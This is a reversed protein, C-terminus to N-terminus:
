LTPPRGYGGEKIKHNIGGGSRRQPASAREGPLAADIGKSGRGFGLTLAPTRPWKTQSRPAGGVLILKDRVGREECIQALRRM